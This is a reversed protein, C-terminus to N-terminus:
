KEWKARGATPNAENRSAFILTIELLSQVREGEGVMNTTEVADSRLGGEVSWNSETHAQAVTCEGKFQALEGCLFNRITGNTVLERLLVELDKLDLTRIFHSYPYLTQGLSSLIIARWYGARQESLALNKKASIGQISSEM